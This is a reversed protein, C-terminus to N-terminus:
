VWEKGYATKYDAKMKDINNKYVNKKYNDFFVDKTVAPEQTTAIPTTNVVAPIVINNIITEAAEYTMALFAEKADAKIKGATIAQEVLNTLKAKEDTLRKAEVDNKFAILSIIEAEILSDDAVNLLTKINDTEMKEKKNTVKNKVIRNVFGWDIAEQSTLFKEQKMLDIIQTKRKGTKKQYINVLQEDYSALVDAAKEIEEVNGDVFTSARHILFRSNETIEIEDGGMAIVTGASATAGSIRVKIHAPNKKMEDHIALATFIDGGLSAIDIEINSFDGNIDNKFKEFTYGDSWFGSGIEGTILVKATDANNTVKIM